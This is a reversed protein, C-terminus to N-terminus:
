KPALVTSGPVATSVRCVENAATRMASEARVITGYVDAAEPRTLPDAAWMTCILEVIACTAVDSADLSPLLPREGRDMAKGIALDNDLHAFPAIGTVLEAMLVGLSFITTPHHPPPTTTSYLPPTTPHHPPPTISNTNRKSILTRIHPSSSRVHPSTSSRNHHHLPWIRM